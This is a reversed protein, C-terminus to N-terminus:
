PKIGNFEFHMYDKVSVWDGGWTFGHNHFATIYAQPMDHPLPTGDGSWPNTSPNIDCAAGYTHYSRLGINSSGNDSDYRYCGMSSIAYSSGSQKIEDSVASLCPAVLPNVSVSHGLFNVSVQKDQMAKHDALTGPDGFIAALQAQSYENGSGNVSGYVPASLSCPGLSGTSGSTCSPLQGGTSTGGTLSIPLPVPDATDWYKDIITQAQSAFPQYNMGTSDGSRQVAQAAVWPQMSQWGSVNQLGKTLAGPNALGSALTAGPPSGFFAEASFAPDMDQWVADKNSLAAPGTAFTSWGKDPQQQFVGVSNHDSGVVSAAPNSLSIPV